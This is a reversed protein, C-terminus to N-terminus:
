RASTLCLNRIIGPTKEDCTAGWRAVVTSRHQIDAALIPDSERLTRLAKLNAALLPGPEAALRCITWNHCRDSEVVGTDRLVKVHRSVKPQDIELVEGLHCICLPGDLLLNLIRLRTVDGLCQYLKAPEIM